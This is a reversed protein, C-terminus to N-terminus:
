RQPQPLENSDNQSIKLERKIVWSQLRISSEGAMRMQSIKHFNGGISIDVQVSNQKVTDKTVSM